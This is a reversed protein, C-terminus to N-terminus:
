GAGLALGLRAVVLKAAEAVTRARVPPALDSEILFPADGESSEIRVESLAAPHRVLWLGADDEGPHAARVREVAIGPHAERLTATLHDIDRPM